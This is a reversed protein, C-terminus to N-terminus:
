LPNLNYQTFCKRRGLGQKYQALHATPVVLTLPIRRGGKGVLLSYFFPGKPDLSPCTISGGKGGKAKERQVDTPPTKERERRKKRGRQSCIAFRPCWVVPPTSRRRWLSEGEKRRRRRRLQQDFPPFSRRRRRQRHRTHSVAEDRGGDGDIGGEKLPSEGRSGGDFRPSPFREQRRRFPLFIKSSSRRREEGESKGTASFNKPQSRAEGREREWSGKETSFFTQALSSPPLLPYPLPFYLFLFFPPFLLGVRGGGVEKERRLHSLPLFSPPSPSSSFFLPFYHPSKPHGTGLFIALSFLPFFQQLGTRGSLFSPFPFFHQIHFLLFLLLGCVCRGRLVYTSVHFNSASLIHLCLSPSLCTHKERCTPLLLLLVRNLRFKEM